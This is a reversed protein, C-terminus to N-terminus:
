CISKCGNEDIVTATYFGAKVGTLPNSTSALTTYSRESTESYTWVYTFPTTGGVVTLSRGDEAGHCSPRTVTQM